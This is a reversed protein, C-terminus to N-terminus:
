KHNCVKIPGEETVYDAPILKAREELLNIYATKEASISEIEIVLKNQKNILDSQLDILVIAKNNTQQQKYVVFLLFLISICAGILLGILKM